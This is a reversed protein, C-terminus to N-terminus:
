VILLRRNYQRSDAIGVRVACHLDRERGTDLSYTELNLCNAGRTQMLV